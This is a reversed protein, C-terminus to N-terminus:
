RACRPCLGEIELTHGLVTFGREAAIRRIGAEVGGAPIEELAGCSRCILHHHHEPACPIYRACQEGDIGHVRGLVGIRVLQDLTRFVTARGVGSPLLETVVDQATFPRHRRLAAAIIASRAGTRRLGRRDLRDLVAALPTTAAGTM